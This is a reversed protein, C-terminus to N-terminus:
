QNGPVALVLKLPAGNFIRCRTRITDEAIGKALSLPLLLFLHHPGVEQGGIVLM